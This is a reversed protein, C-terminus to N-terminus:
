ARQFVIQFRQEAPTPPRDNDWWCCSEVAALGSTGARVTIEAPTYLEFEMQESTGDIYESISRLRNALMNDHFEPQAQEAV